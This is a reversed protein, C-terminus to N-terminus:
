HCIRAIREIQRDRRKNAQMKRDLAVGADRLRRRDRTVLIFLVIASAAVFICDVLIGVLRDSLAAPSFLQRVLLPEVIIWLGSCLLYVLVIYSAARPPPREGNSAALAVEFKMM